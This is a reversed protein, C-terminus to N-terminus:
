AGAVIEELTARLRGVFANAEPYKVLVEDWGLKTVLDTLYGSRALNMPSGGQGIAVFPDLRLGLSRLLEDDIVSTPEATEITAGRGCSCQDRRCRDDDGDDSLEPPVALPTPQLPTPCLSPGSSSNRSPPTPSTTSCNATPAM